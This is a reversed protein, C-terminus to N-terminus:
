LLYGTQLVLTPENLQIPSPLSTFKLEGTEEDFFYNVIDTQTQRNVDVSNIYKGNWSILKDLEEPNQIDLMFFQVTEPLEEWIVLVKM